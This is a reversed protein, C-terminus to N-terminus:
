FLNEVVIWSILAIWSWFGLANGWMFVNFKISNSQSRHRIFPYAICYNMFRSMIHHSMMNQYDAHLSKADKSLQKDIWVIRQPDSLSLVAGFVVGPISWLMAYVYLIMFIVSQLNYLWDSNM